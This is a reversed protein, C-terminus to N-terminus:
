HQHHGGRAPPLPLMVPVPFPLPLPAELVPAHRRHDHRHGRPEDDKFWQSLAWMGVAAVVLPGVIQEAPRVIQANYIPAPAPTVAVPAPMTYAPPLPATVAPVPQYRVGDVIITQATQTTQANAQTALVTALVAATAACVLTKVPTKVVTRLM